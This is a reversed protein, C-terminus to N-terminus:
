CITNEQKVSVVIWDDLANFVRSSHISMEELTLVAWVVLMNIRYQLNEKEFSM